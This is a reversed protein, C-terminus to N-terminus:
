LKRELRVKVTAIVKFDKQDVGPINVSVTLDLLVMVEALLTQGSALDILVIGTAQGGIAEVNGRDGRVVGNISLVAEQRRDRTRVGLYTYTMDMKGSEYKGPTDIPLHREAKWSELPQVTGDGKAPLSVSMTELGQQFRENFRKIDNLLNHELRANIQLDPIQKTINGVSDLDVVNQLYPLYDQVDVFLKSKAPRGGPLIINYQTKNKQYKLILRSGSPTSKQVKEQFTSETIMRFTDSDDDGVKFINELTLKVDRVANPTHNLVLRAPKREVPATPLRLESAAAWHTEGNGNTWTPQQWWVKGPPLAPLIIDKKGEGHLYTLEYHQHQSDGAAQGPQKTAPPRRSTAPNAPKDGTWVDIGVKKIRNRPDIMEMVVPVAIRKSEAFYPQHIGLTSIRGNLIATVRDGPIAFNIQRGEIVAVAVGVVHGNNDVVPGGSNGPDMGGNVQV